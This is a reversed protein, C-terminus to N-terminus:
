DTSSSAMAGADARFASKLAVGADALAQRGSDIVGALNFFV